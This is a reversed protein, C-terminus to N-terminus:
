FYKFGLILYMIGNRFVLDDKMFGDYVGCLGILVFM